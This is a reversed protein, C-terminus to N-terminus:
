LLNYIKVRQTCCLKFCKMFYDLAFMFSIQKANAAAARIEQLVFLFFFRFYHIIVMSVSISISEVLLLVVMTKVFESRPIVAHNKESATSTLVPSSVVNLSPHNVAHSIFVNFHQPCTCFRCSSHGSCLLPIQSKSANLFESVEQIHIHVCSTRLAM